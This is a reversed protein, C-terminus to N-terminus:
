GRLALIMDRHPIGADDYVPGTAHFGLREYFGIAHTQSGLLAFAIGPDARFVEVASRVLAAGIGQGRADALVCVRGIKGSAGDTLLRATGVPRGATIALLHRASADKGDVEDAVSVGQEEIFVVRRLSQCTAIDGTLTISATM